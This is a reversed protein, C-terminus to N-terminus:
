GTTAKRDEKDPEKTEEALRLLILQKGREASVRMVEGKKVLRLDNEKDFFDHRVKIYM